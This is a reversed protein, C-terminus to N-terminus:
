TMPLAWRLPVTSKTSFGSLHQAILMQYQRIAPPCIKLAFLSCFGINSDKKRSENNEDLIMDVLHPAMRDPIGFDDQEPDVANKIAGLVSSHSKAGKALEEIWLRM